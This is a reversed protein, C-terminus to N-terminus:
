APRSTFGPVNDVAVAATPARLRGCPLSVDHVFQDREAWLRSQHRYEDASVRVQKVLVVEGYHPGHKQAQQGVPM